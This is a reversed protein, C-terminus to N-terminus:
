GCNAEDLDIKNTKVPIIAPSHTAVIIQMSPALKNISPLLKRQWALHLSLEPEDAIFVSGNTESLAVKGLLALLHKEGSSLDELKIKEAGCKFLFGGVDNFEFSKNVLFSNMIEQFIKFVRLQSMRYETSKEVESLISMLRTHFPQLSNYARYADGYKVMLENKKNEKDSSKTSDIYDSRTKILEAHLRAMISFHEELRVSSLQLGIEDFKQKATKYDEAKIQRNSPSSSSISRYLTDDILFKEMVKTKLAELEDRIVRQKKSFLEKFGRELGVLVRRIPDLLLDIEDSEIDRSRVISHWWMERERPSEIGLDNENIRSLPLYISSINEGIFDRLTKQNTLIVEGGASLLCLPGHENSDFFIEGTSTKSVSLFKIPRTQGAKSLSITVQEFRTRSLKKADCYLVAVLLNIITTKGSGNAGYICNTNEHFNIVRDNKEGFLGSIRLRRIYYDFSNAM